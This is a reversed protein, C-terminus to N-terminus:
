VTEMSAALTSQLHELIFQEEDQAFMRGLKPLFMGFVTTALPVLLSVWWNKDTHGSKMPIYGFILLFVPLSSLVVFVFWFRTFFRARPCVDFHGEIRTGGPEPEFRGYFCPAFDNRYNRRKRVWFTTGELKGLVARDGRNGSFSFLSVSEEDMSRRLAGAAADPAFASHLVIQRKM